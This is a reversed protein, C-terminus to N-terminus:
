IATFLRWLQFTQLSSQRLSCHILSLDTQSRRPDVPDVSINALLLGAKSCFFHFDDCISNDVICVIVFIKLCYCIQVKPVDDITTVASALFSTFKAQAKVAGDTLNYNLAKEMLM